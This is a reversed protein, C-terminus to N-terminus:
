KREPILIVFRFMHEDHKILCSGGYKEVTKQVNHIGIGHISKDEKRTQYNGDVEVPVEEFTNIVSLVLQGKERIFKVKVVKEKCKECAELANNLLNSLIVVIDEDEIWLASLDNIRFVFTVGKKQAEQYKTNLITNVISHNTDISDMKHTIKEDQRALYHNLEEWKQEQALASIVAMQNKYEHERKRQQEYNESIQRYMAMENRVQERFLRDERIQHERKILVHILYLVFVNMLLIGSTIYLLVNRQRESTVMNFNIAMVTITSITLIPLITFRLWEVATLKELSKKSYYRRLLLIICFSLFPGMCGILIDVASSGFRGNRMGAFFPNYLVIYFIFDAVLSFGHYLLVSIIVRLISQEFCIWMILSNFLIIGIMKAWMYDALLFSILYDMGIMSVLLLFRYSKALRVRKQAITGVFMQCLIGYVATNVMGLIDM